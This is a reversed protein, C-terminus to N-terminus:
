AEAILMVGDSYGCDLGIPAALIISYSLFIHTGSQGTSLEASAELGEAHQHGSSERTGRSMM